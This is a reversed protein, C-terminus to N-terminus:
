IGESPMAHLLLPVRFFHVPISFRGARAAALLEAEREFPSIVTFSLREAVLTSWATSRRSLKSARDALRSILEHATTEQPNLDVHLFSLRNTPDVRWRGGRPLGPVALEGHTVREIARLAELLEAHTLPRFGHQTAAEAVALRCWLGAPGFERPPAAGLARAGLATMSVWPIDGPLHGTAVLKRTKLRRVRCRIAEPSLELLEGLARRTIAQCRHVLEITQKQEQSVRPAGSPPKAEKSGSLEALRPPAEALTTEQNMSTEFAEAKLSVGGLGFGLGM